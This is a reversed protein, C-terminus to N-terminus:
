KYNYKSGCAAIINTPNSLCLYFDRINGTSTECENISIRGRVKTLMDSVKDFKEKDIYGDRYNKRGNELMQDISYRGNELAKACNMSNAKSTNSMLGKSFEEAANQADPSLQKKGETTSPSSSKVQMQEYQQQQPPNSGYHTVGQEDVWKYVGASANLAFITYFIALFIKTM